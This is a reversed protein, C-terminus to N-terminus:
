ECQNVEADRNRVVVSTNQPDSASVSPDWAEQYLFLTEQNRSPALCALLSQLDYYLLHDKLVLFMGDVVGGNM